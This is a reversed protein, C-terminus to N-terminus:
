ACNKNDNCIQEAIDCRITMAFRCPSAIWLFVFQIAEPKAVRAIVCAHRLQYDTTLVGKCFGGAAEVTQRLIRM